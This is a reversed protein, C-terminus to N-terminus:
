TGFASMSGDSFLQHVFPHATLRLEDILEPGDVDKNPIRHPKRQCCSGNANIGM